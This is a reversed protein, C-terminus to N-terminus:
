GLTTLSSLIFKVVGMKIGDVVKNGDQKGGLQYSLMGVVNELLFFAPRYFEVYSIMNCVLTSRSHMIFMSLLFGLTFHAFMGSMM